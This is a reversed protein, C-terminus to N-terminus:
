GAVDRRSFVVWALLLFLVYYAALVGISFSLAVGGPGRDSVLYGSLDMHSFPLYKAWEFRDPNFITIFLNKVFIIFLSLGIALGSARFVSSVMFALTATLFLEVYRCVILMGSYAEPSWGGQTMGAGGSPLLILSAAFACVTMLLTTLLSFLVMSIYKSLLIKSRSWPRILLLKITGWSFEGAIADSAIVVTFITTLNFIVSLTIQFGDWQGPMNEPTSNVYILVPILVSFVALLLLMIWTRARSYIKVNENHVLANFKSM